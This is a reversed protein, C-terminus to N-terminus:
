LEPEVDRKKIDSPEARAWQRLGIIVALGVAAAAALLVWRGGGSSIWGEVTATITDATGILGDSAVSDAPRFLVSGWYYVLYGSALLLLGGNLWRMHPLARKLLHALGDRLLAASIALAMLVLAMGAAYAAFVVITTLPSSTALSAGIVVLFVPMTCGLSALGYGVGFLYMASARRRRTDGRPRRVTLSLSRGSLTAVAVGAMVVGIGLGIWPVATSIQGLGLVVPLGLVAFVTLFAAAVLLGVFVGQMARTSTRPLVHEEAGVYFSLFAALMAFGCPNLTALAGALMALGIPM